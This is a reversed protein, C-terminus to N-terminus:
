DAHKQGALYGATFGADWQQRLLPRLALDDVTVCRKAATIALPLADSHIYADHAFTRAQTMKAKAAIEADAQAIRRTANEARSEPTGNEHEVRAHTSEFALKGQRGREPGDLRMQKALTAAAKAAPNM